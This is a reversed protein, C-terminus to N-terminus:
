LPAGTADGGLIANSSGRMFTAVGHPLRTPPTATIACRARTFGIQAGAQLVGGHPLDAPGAAAKLYDIRLDLTAM